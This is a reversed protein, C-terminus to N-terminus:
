IEYTKYNWAKINTYIEVYMCVYIHNKFIQIYLIEKQMLKIYIVNGFDHKCVTEVYKYVIFIVHNM